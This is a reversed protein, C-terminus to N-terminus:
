ASTETSFRAGGGPKPLRIVLTGAVLDHLTRKEPNFAAMLYGTALPLYSLLYAIGRVVSQRMKIPGLGSAQVVRLRLLYKGPTAGFRWHGWIFYPISLIAYIVGEVIQATGSDLSAWFGDVGASHGILVSIWYYAGLVVLQVLWTMCQLAIWDIVTALFRIWFGAYPVRNPDSMESM